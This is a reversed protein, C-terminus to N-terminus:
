GRGQGRQLDLAWPRAVVSGGGGSEPSMEPWDVAVLRSLTLGIEVRHWNNAQAPGVDSAAFEGGGDPAHRHLIQVRPRVILTFPLTTHNSFNLPGVRFISRVGKLTKAPDQLNRLLDCFFGFIAFGIKNHETHSSRCSKCLMYIIKLNLKQM